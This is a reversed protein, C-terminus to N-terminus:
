KPYLSFEGSFYLESQSSDNFGLSDTHDPYIWERQNSLGRVVMSHEWLDNTQYINDATSLVRFNDASM